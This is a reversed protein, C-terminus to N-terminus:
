RSNFTLPIVRLDRSRQAGRASAITPLFEGSLTLRLFPSHYLSFLDTYIRPFTGRVRNSVFIRFAEAPEHEIFILLVALTGKQNKKDLIQRNKQTNAVIIISLNNIRIILFAILSYYGLILTKKIVTYLRHM